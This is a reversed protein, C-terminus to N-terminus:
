PTNGSIQCIRLHTREISIGPVRIKPNFIQCLKPNRIIIVKIIRSLIHIGRKAPAKECARVVRRKVILESSPVGNVRLRSPDDRTIRASEIIRPNYHRAVPRIEDDNAGVSCLPEVHQLIQRADQIIHMALHHFLLITFPKQLFYKQVSIRLHNTPFRQTCYM